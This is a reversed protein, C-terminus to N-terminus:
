QKLILRGAAVSFHSLKSLFSMGLLGTQLRNDPFVAAPVDRVAVEGIVVEKLVVPALLVVGNATEARVTFDAPAPNIGVHRADERSLVVLTAGTDIMMRLRTGNVTPDVYFHGLPDAPVTALMPEMPVPRPLGRARAEFEATTEGLRPILESNHESNDQASTVLWSKPALAMALLILSLYGLLKPPLM